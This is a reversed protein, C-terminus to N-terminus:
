EERGNGQEGSEDTGSTVLRSVNTMGVKRCYEKQDDMMELLRCIRIREEISM